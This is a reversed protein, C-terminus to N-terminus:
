TEYPLDTMDIYQPKTEATLLFLNEFEAVNGVVSEPEDILVDVEVPAIYTYLSSAEVYYSSYSYYDFYSYDYYDGYYYYNDYQYYNYTSTYSSSSTYSDHSLARKKNGDYQEEYFQEDQELPNVGLLMIVQPLLKM